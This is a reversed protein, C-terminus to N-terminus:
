RIESVAAVIAPAFGVAAGAVLTEAEAVTRALAPAGTGTRRVTAVAVEETEVREVGLEVELRAGVTVLELPREVAVDELGGLEHAGVLALTAPTRPTTAATSAPM